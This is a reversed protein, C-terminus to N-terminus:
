IDNHQEEKIEKLEKELKNINKGTLFDDIKYRNLDDLNGLKDIINLLEMKKSSNINESENVLTFTIISLLKTNVDYNNVQENRRILGSFIPFIISLVVAFGGIYLAKSETSVFFELGHIFLLVSIISIFFIELDSKIKMKKIKKLNSFRSYLELDMNEIFDQLKEENQKDNKLIFNVM